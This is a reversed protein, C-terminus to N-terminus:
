VADGIMKKFVQCKYKIGNEEQVGSPVGPFSEQLIFQERDFDPFFVDCDFNAMIHTLYILDCWPHSLAEKYVVAGGIVWITEILDALPPEGALRVVDDFDKCLFHAHDPVTTLTNSLVAHLANPLPFTSEPHAYWTVRGWLLLNMKGPKSVATITDLFYQFESPIDWPMKRDKAIGMNNCAAVMLSMPKKQVQDLSKEM